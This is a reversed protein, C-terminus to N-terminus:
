GASPLALELEDSGAHIEGGAARALERALHLGLPVDAARAESATGVSIWTTGDQQHARMVVQSASTRDVADGVLSMLMQQLREPDVYVRLTPPVGDVAVASAPFAAAVARAVPLVEVQRPEMRLDRDSQLRAYDSFERVRHRLKTMERRMAALAEDQRAPALEPDLRDLLGGVVAVPTVLDHSARAILQERARAADALALASQLRGSRERSFFELLGAAPVLLLVAYTWSQAAFAALLGIPALMADVAQIWGVLRAQLRPPIGRGAWERAVTAALDLAFQSALALLYWPWDSWDPTQAGAATLVVSPGIAFWCNAPVLLLRDPHLRRTVVDPLNGLLWGACVLLPVFPTPLLLLMPVFVLEVPSTYGAGVDFNLRIAAAFMATLVITLGVDWDREAHGVLALGVAAVAFLAGISTETLLRRREMPRQADTYSRRVLETAAPEPHVRTAV